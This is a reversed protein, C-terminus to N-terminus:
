LYVVKEITEVNATPDPRDIARQIELLTEDYNLKITHAMLILRNRNQPAAKALRLVANYLTNQGAEIPLDVEYEELAFVRLQKPSMDELDWHWNSLHRNSMAAATITDFGNKRAEAEEALDHVLVPTEGDKHLYRPYQPIPHGKNGFGVFMVHYEFDLSETDAM